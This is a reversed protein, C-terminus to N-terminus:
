DFLKVNTNRGDLIILRGDDLVDIGTVSCDSEDEPSKVCIQEQKYVNITSLSVSFHLLYM